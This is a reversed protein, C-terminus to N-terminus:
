RITLTLVAYLPAMFVQVGPMKAGARRWSKPPYGVRWGAWIKVASNGYNKVTADKELTPTPRIDATFELALSTSTSRPFSKALMALAQFRMGSTAM